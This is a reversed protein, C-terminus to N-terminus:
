TLEAYRFCTTLHDVVLGAAQLHSYVVTPGVFRFGRRRLDASVSASLPTTAPIKSTTRWRNVIPEGDVFGWLYRDFSGHEAQVALFAAANSVTSEVKLRNRIIGPDKLLSAVKRESFRAVVEPDFDAFAKRYGDRRKLVTLWSLGAQAAELTLFEFHRRDDHVPVGWEEDHYPALWPGNAWDCRNRGDDTADAM